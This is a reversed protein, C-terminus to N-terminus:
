HPPPVVENGEALSLGRLAVTGVVGKTLRHIGRAVELHDVGM